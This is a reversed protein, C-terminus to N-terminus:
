RGRMKKRSFMDGAEQKMTSAFRFKVPRDMEEIKLEGIVTATSENAESVSVLGYGDIEPSM